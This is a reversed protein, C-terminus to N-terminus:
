FVYGVAATSQVASFGPHNVALYSARVSGYLHSTHSFFIDLGLGPRITTYAATQAGGRGTYYGTYYSRAITLGFGLDAYPRLLSSGGLSDFQYRLGVILPHLYVESAEFRHLHADVDRGGDMVEAGFDYSVAFALRETFFRRVAIQTNSDSVYNTSTPGSENTTSNGGISGSMTASLEVSFRDALDLGEKTHIVPANSVSTETEAFAFTSSAMAALLVVLSTKM